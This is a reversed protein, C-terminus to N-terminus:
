QSSSARRREDSAGAQPQQNPPGAHKASRAQSHPSQPAGSRGLPQGEEPPPPTPAEDPDALRALLTVQRALHAIAEDLIDPRRRAIRDLQASMTALIPYTTRYSASPQVVQAAQTAALKDILFLVLDKEPVGEEGSKWKSWRVPTAALNDLMWLRLEAFPVGLKDAAAEIAVERNPNKGIDDSM